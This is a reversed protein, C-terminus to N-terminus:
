PLRVLPLAMRRRGAIVDVVYHGADFERLPIGILQLGPELQTHPMQYRVAGQADVVRLHIPEADVVMVAVTTEETAPNPYLSAMVSMGSSVTKYELGCVSDLEFRGSRPRVVLASPCSTSGFTVGAATIALETSPRKGLFTDFTLVVVTDKPLFNTPMELDVLLTGPSTETAARETAGEAGTGIKAVARFRLLSPDYSANIVCRTTTAAVLPDVVVPVAVVRGPRSRVVAPLAVRITDPAVVSATMAVALPERLGNTHLFLTGSDAGLQNPRYTVIVNENGGPPINIVRRSYVAEGSAVAYTISDIRLDTNGVNALRLTRSVDSDCRDLKVVTGFNLSAPTIQLQPLLGRGKVYFTIDQAGDPVGTIGRNRLDTRIVYRMSHLGPDVPVFRVVLTDSWGVSLGAGGQSVARAIEFAATDRATGIREERLIGIPCNGDNKVVVTATSGVNDAFVDGFDITDGDVRVPLPTGTGALIQLRQEVGVGKVMALVSDVKATPDPRYAVVFYASDAGRDIPAYQLSWTVDGKPPFSVQAFTTASIEPTGVVPSLMTVRQAEVPMTQDVINTLTYQRVPAAPIPRVYVSDFGVTPTTTALIKTTKLGRLTFRGFTIVDLPNLSDSVRVDLKCLNVVDPPLGPDGVVARFQIRVIGTEGPRVYRPLKINDLPVYEEKFPANGPVRGGTTDNYIIFYPDNAQPWAERLAVTRDTRNRVYLTRTVPFGERTVGFNIETNSPDDVSWYLDVKPQALASGSALMLLFFLVQPLPKNVIAGATSM